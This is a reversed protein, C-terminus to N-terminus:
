YGQATNIVSGDVANIAFLPLTETYGNARETGDPLTISHLNFSGYAVWAPLLYYSGPEDRVRTRILNLEIKTVNVEADVTCDDFSSALMREGMELFRNRTWMVELQTKIANVISDYDKLQVNENLVETEMPSMYDFIMIQGKSVFFVIETDSYIDAYQEESAGYKGPDSKYTWYYADSVLSLDGFVPLCTIRLSYTDEGSKEVKKIKVNTMGTEELFSQVLEKAEAIEEDTLETTQYYKFPENVPNRLDHPYVSIYSVMRDNGEQRVAQFYYPIGNVEASADITMSDNDWPTKRYYYNIDHYQFDCPKPTVEDRANEYEAKLSALEPYYYSNLTSEVQEESGYYELLWDKDNIKQEIALIEEELEAKSREESYEYIEADGFLARAFMEVESETFFHPTMKVVSAKEADSLDFSADINYTIEGTSNKFSEKVDQYSDASLKDGSSNEIKDQLESGGKNVVIDQEPTKECAGLCLLTVACLAAALPRILKKM